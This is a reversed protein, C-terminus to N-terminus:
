IFEILLKGKVDGTPLESVKVYGIEDQAGINSTATVTKGKAATLEASINGLTEGKANCLVPTVTMSETESKKDTCNYLSARVVKCGAPVYATEKGFVLTTEVDDVIVTKSTNEKPGNADVTVEIFNVAGEAPKACADNKLDRGSGAGMRRTVGFTGVYESM